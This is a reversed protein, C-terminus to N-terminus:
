GCSLTCLSGGGMKYVTLVAFMKYRARNKGQVRSRSNARSIIKKFNEMQSKENFYMLNELKEHMNQWM